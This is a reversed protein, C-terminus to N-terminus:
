FFCSESDTDSVNLRYCHVNRFKIYAVNIGIIEKSLITLVYGVKTFLKGHVNLFSLNFRKNLQFFFRCVDFVHFHIKLNM